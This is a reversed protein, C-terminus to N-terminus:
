KQSYGMAALTESGYKEFIRLHEKKFYNEWDGINGKRLHGLKNLNSKTNKINIKNILDEYNNSEKFGLFNSIKIISNLKHLVIEEFSISLVNPDDKFIFYSKNIHDVWAKVAREFYQFDSFIEEQTTYKYEKNLLLSQPRIVHHLQSNIVDRGDRFIYITKNIKKLPSKKITLLNEHSWILSSNNILLDSDIKVYKIPFITQLYLENNKININDVEAIEPFLLNQPYLKESLESFGSSKVLSFFSDNNEILNRIIKYLLYNGSKPYGCQLIQM